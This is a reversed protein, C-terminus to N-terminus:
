SILASLGSSGMVVSYSALQLGIFSSPLCSISSVEMMLNIDELLCLYRPGILDGFTGHLFGQAIEIIGKLVEKAFDGQLFLAFPLALAPIRLELTFLFSVTTSTKGSREM